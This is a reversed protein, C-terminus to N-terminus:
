GGCGGPYLRGSVQYPPHDPLGPYDVRAVASHAALYAAIARATRTHAAMRLPLTPLGLLTLWADMVGQCAGLRIIKARIAEVLGREGAAVGGMAASHGGLYKAVSHWALTAGHEVPRLLAPSAFTADVLVPVGRARGLPRWTISPM